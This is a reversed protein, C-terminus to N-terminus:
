VFVDSGSSLLAEVAEPGHRVVLNLTHRLLTAGRHRFLRIITSATCVHDFLPRERRGIKVNPDLGADFFASVAEEKRSEIAEIVPWYDKVDMRAGAALLLRLIVANGVRAAAALATIGPDFRRYSDKGHGIESWEFGHNRNM